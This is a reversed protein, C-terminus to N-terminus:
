SLEGHTGPRLTIILVAFTVEETQRSTFSISSVLNNETSEVIQINRYQARELLSHYPDSHFSGLHLECFHWNQNLWNRLDIEYLYKSRSNVSWYQLFM